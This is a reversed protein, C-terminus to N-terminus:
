TLTSVLRAFETNELRRVLTDYNSLLTSYDVNIAKKLRRDHRFDFAVRLGTAINRLPGPGEPIHEGSGARELDRILSEYQCTVVKNDRGSDLFRHHDRTITRAIALCDEIDIHYRRDIVVGDYNHWLNRKSAIMASIACHIVNRTTHILTAGRSRFYSLIFPSSLDWNSPQIQRLQNYKIDIGFAHSRRKKDGEWHNRIRYRVFDFYRDLLAEAEGNGAAGHTSGVALDRLFNNWHAPARSPTLVEGLMAIQDNTNLTERLINTGTRQAGIVVFLQDNAAPTDPNYNPIVDV